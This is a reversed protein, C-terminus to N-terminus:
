ERATTIRSPGNECTVKVSLPKANRVDKADFEEWADGAKGGVLLATGSRLRRHQGDFAHLSLKPANRSTM